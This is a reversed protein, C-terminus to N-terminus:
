ETFCEVAILLGAKFGERYHILSIEAGLKGFADSLEGLAKRQKENLENEFKDTLLCVEELAKKYGDDEKIVSQYGRKGLFMEDIVSQM